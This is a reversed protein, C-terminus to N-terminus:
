SKYIELIYIPTEARARAGMISHTQLEINEVKSDAQM